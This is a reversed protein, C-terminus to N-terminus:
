ISRIRVLIDKRHDKYFLRSVMSGCPMRTFIEDMVCILITPIIM